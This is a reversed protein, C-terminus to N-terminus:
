RHRSGRHRATVCHVVREFEAYEQIDDPTIPQDQPM